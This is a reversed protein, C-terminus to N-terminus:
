PRRAAGTHTGHQVAKIGRDEFQPDLYRTCCDLAEYLHQDADIAQFPLDAM